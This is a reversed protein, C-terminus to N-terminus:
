SLEHGYGNAGPGQVGIYKGFDPEPAARNIQTHCVDFGDVAVDVTCRLGAYPVIM